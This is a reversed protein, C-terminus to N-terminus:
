LGNAQLLVQRDEVGDFLTLATRKRSFSSTWGQGYKNQTKQCPYTYEYDTHSFEGNVLSKGKQKGKRYNCYNGNVGQESHSCSRAYLV